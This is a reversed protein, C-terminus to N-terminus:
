LSKEAKAVIQGASIEVGGDRSVLKGFPDAV